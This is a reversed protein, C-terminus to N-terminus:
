STGCVKAKLEQGKWQHGNILEIASERDEECRGLLLCLWDMFCVFLFVSVSTKMPLWRAHYLCFHSSFLTHTATNFLHINIEVFM